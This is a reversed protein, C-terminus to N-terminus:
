EWLLRGHDRDPWKAALFRHFKKGLQRVRAEGIAAAAASAANFL